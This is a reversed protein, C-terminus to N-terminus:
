ACKRNWFSLPGAYRAHHTMSKRSSSFTCCMSQGAINGSKFGISFRQDSMERPNFFMSLGGFWLPQFSGPQQPCRALYEPDSARLIQTSCEKVSAYKICRWFLGYSTSFLKQYQKAHNM